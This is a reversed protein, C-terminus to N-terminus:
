PSLLETRQRSGAAPCALKAAQNPAAVRQLQRLPRVSNCM